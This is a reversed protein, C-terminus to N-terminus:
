CSSLLLQSPRGHGCYVHGLLPPPTSHGKRPASPVRRICHPRHPPRSGYWHRRRGDLWKAVITYSAVRQTPIDTHVVVKNDFHM